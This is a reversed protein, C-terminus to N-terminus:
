GRAQASLAPEHQGRNRRAPRHTGRPVRGAVLHVQPGEHRNARLQGEGRIAIPGDFLDPHRDKLGVWEHKRQFFCFYCGSRTRWEYYRLGTGAEELIRM